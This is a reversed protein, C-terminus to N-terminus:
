LAPLRDENAIDVKEIDDAPTLGMVRSFFYLEAELARRITAAHRFGHAEGAFAIYACPVGRDRLAEYVVQSQSAPVVRDDLGQLLLLPRRLQELRHIPSREIYLDRRQPYPGVLWQDYTAEFKHTEGRFTDLDSIGFHSAGGLFVDRFTLACLTTYGGASGGRIFTRSGDVDGRRELYATAHICDDVDVVGWEGKLRHRYERGYGVSGGYNVDVFGYGRSTWFQVSLDLSPRTASTPGGHSRVLLPPGEGPPAEHAPNRPPYYFAHATREGTTPFEIAEPRSITEPDLTVETASRLVRHGGGDLDVELVCPFSDESAAVMVARGGDVRLASLVPHPLSLQTHEGSGLDVRLLSSRGGSSVLCVAVDGAVGYTSSDFQWQPAGFEAEMPLVCRPGDAELRYLNWWGSRDSLFHLVGDDSWQPQVISEEAGGAVLVADGVEGGTGVNAVWLETADWPMHPHNWTLWSLRSGDPSLRPAAYFDNGGVLPYPGDLEDEPTQPLPISVLSNVPEPAAGRHDECVAILRRRRADVCLDAFRVDTADPTLPTCAGDHGNWRRLRGDAQNSFFASDGDITCAGGGYEHVRSRVDYEGAVVDGAEGDARRRVLATRGTQPRAELWWTEGGGAHVWSLGVSAGAVLEAGIRSSWTGHPAVRRGAM